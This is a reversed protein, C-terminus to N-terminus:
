NGIPTGAARPPTVAARAEPDALPAHDRRSVPPDIAAPESTRALWHRSGFCGVPRYGRKGPSTAGPRRRHGDGDVAVAAVRRGAPHAEVSWRGHVVPWERPRSTRWGSSPPPTGRGTNRARRTSWGASGRPRSARAVCAPGSRATPVGSSRLNRRQARDGLEQTESNLISLSRDVSFSLFRLFEPVPRLPAVLPGLGM